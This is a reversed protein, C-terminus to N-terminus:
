FAAGLGGSVGAISSAIAPTTGGRLVVGLQTQLQQNTLGLYSSPVYGNANVMTFPVFSPSQEDYYLRYRGGARPLYTIVDESYLSEIRRAPRPAFDYPAHLYINRQTRGQLAATSLSNFITGNIIVSRDTAEGKGVDIGTVASVYGRQISTTRRVPARVGVEFGVIVSDEISIGQTLFNTEVGVNAMYGRVDGFLRANRIKLQGSYHVDIGMMTTNWSLFSEIIGYGENMVQMHHWIELGTRSAYAVNNFFRKLPVSGVPVANQGGALTPNDLNAADFLNKTSM